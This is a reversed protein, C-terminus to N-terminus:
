FNVCPISLIIEIRIRVFSYLFPNCENIRSEPNMNIYDIDFACLGVLKPCPVLLGVGTVSTSFSPGSEVTYSYKSM